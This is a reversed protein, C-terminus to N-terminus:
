PPGPAPPRPRAWRRATSSGVRERGVYRGRQLLDGFQGGGAAVDHAHGHRTLVIGVCQRFDAAFRRNRDDGIDVELGFVHELGDVGAARGHAHVGAVDTLEVFDARVDALGGGVRADRQTDTHVGARQVLFEVGFVTARSRFCQHGRGQLFRVHELVDAEVIELDGDFVMVDDGHDFRVSQESGLAIPRQVEADGLGARSPM